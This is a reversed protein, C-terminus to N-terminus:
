VIRTVKASPVNRSILWYPVDEYGLELLLNPVPRLARDGVFLIKYLLTYM